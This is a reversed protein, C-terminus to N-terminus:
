PSRDWAPLNKAHLSFSPSPPLSNLSFSATDFRTSEINFSSLIALRTAQSIDRFFFPYPFSTSTRFYRVGNEPIARDQGRVNLLNDQSNSISAHSRLPRFQSSPLSQFSSVFPRYSLHIFHLYPLPTIRRCTLLFRGSSRSRLSGGLLYKSGKRKSVTSTTSATRITSRNM